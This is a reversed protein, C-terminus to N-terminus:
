AGIAQRALNCMRVRDAADETGGNISITIKELMWSDASVNLRHTSWFWVASNAAGQRTGAQDAATEITVGMADAFLQYNDRGTIQILGRGRFRWGDGSAANGNGLRDAYVTNALHEPARACPAAAAETPFRSPWVVCLRAASYNLDEELAQFGESEVACQGLFAGIRNPTTVGAKQMPVALVQAWAMAEADTLHPAVAQVGRVLRAPTATFPQNMITVAAAVAPSLSPTSPQGELDTLASSM